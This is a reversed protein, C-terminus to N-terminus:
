LDPRDIDIMKGFRLKGDPTLNFYKITAPKGIYKAKNLLFEACEAHKYNLGADSTEGNAMRVVVRAAIEAMKGKGPTFDVVEFEETTFIKVKQLTKVRGCHYPESGDRVMAGEYGLDTYDDHFKKVTEDNNPITSQPVIVIFQMELETAQRILAQRQSFDADPQDFDKCDFVHLQLIDRIAEWDKEKISSAKTKRALSTIKNFDDKLSHNYLEGDLLVNPYKEFFPKLAEEIFKTSVYAKGRRTFAGDKTIVCRLGDLKPSIFVEEPLFKATSAKREVALTPEFYEPNAAANHIALIEDVYGHYKQKENWIRKAELQAQQKAGTENAKGVNKPHAKTAADVQLKGDVQGHTAFYTSGQTQISWQLTKGTKALKYLTPLKM